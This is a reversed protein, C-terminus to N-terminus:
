RTAADFQNQHSKTYGDWFVRTASTIPPIDSESVRVTGATGSVRYDNRNASHSDRGACYGARSSTPV